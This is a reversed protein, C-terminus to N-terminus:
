RWSGWPDADPNMVLITDPLADFHTVRTVLPSVPKTVKRIDMYTLSTKFTTDGHTVRDGPIVLGKWQCVGGHGRKSQFGMAKLRNAVIGWSLPQVGNEAAWQAYDEQMQASTVTGNPNRTYCEDVFRPVHDSEARYAATAGTVAAPIPDLGEEQWALCGRVAWELIGPAEAKLKGALKRDAAAGKFIVNFPIVRMRTWTGQETGTIVPKHNSSLFIKFSPKYEFEKEYLDRTSVVDDGTLNKIFAEALKRGRESESAAIFRAGAMKALGSNAAKGDEFKTALFLAFNATKAYDGLVYALTDVFKSKGNDGEGLLLFLCKEDVSGTLSYGVAKHIYHILEDDGSFVENLFQEWRPCKEDADFTVPSHKTLKDEPREARLKGTKLDIVGNAVGFLYHNADWGYGHDSIPEMGKLVGLAACLRHHNQSDIAWAFEYKAHPDGADSMKISIDRRYKAAARAFRFAEEKPMRRWRRSKENWAIWCKQPHVYRLNNGFLSAILDANGSDSQDPLHWTEKPSVVAQSAKEAVLRAVSKQKHSKRRAPRNATSIKM